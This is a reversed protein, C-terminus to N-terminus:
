RKTVTALGKRRHTRLKGNQGEPPAPSHIVAEWAVELNRQMELREPLPAFPPRKELHIFVVGMPFGELSHAYLLYHAKACPETFREYAQLRYWRIWASNFVM